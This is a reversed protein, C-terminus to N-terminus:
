AKTAIGLLEFRCGFLLPGSGLFARAPFDKKFQTRYVANFRGFLKVDSCYIQVWVLDNMTLGAAALTARVSEMLLHAEQEVASPPRGTARELGLHGSLYFTSGAWVGDSFPWAGARGPRNVYRRSSSSGSSIPKTAAPRKASKGKRPAAALGAVALPLITLLGAVSPLLHTEQAARDALARPAAANYATM